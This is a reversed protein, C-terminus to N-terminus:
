IQITFFAPVVIIVLVVALMMFMPGLLKTGAEEGLKRAQNKRDEFADVTEKKLLDTLGKTGKRLNQSLMAGFKRYSTLGCRGGFREYCEGESIGGQIEHMAYVMEEYAAREGKKEKQGEDDRAIKFWAKRVTM